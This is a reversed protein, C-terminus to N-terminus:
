DRESEVERSYLSPQEATRKPGGNAVIVAVWPLLLSAAVAVGAAWRLDLAMLVIAAIFCAVRIGMTVLYRRQRRRQEERPSQPATTVLVPGGTRSV